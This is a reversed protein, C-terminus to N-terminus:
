KNAIEELLYGTESLHCGRILSAGNFSREFYTEGELVSRTRILAWM